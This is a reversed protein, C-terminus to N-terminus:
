KTAAKLIAEFSEAYGAILKAKDTGNIIRRANIYDCKSGDIYDRLKKGTYIGNLMAHSTAFYSIGPTLMLDPKKELDITDTPHAVNWAKSIKQYNTRGTTQVYGRGRFRYGDGHETNGLMKGIKTGFNYKDFYAVPGYETIPLFTDATEHKITALMYAFHRIDQTLPDTEIYTTLAILANVQSQTLSGFRERYLNFFIRPDIQM